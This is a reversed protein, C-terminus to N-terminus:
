KQSHIKLLQRSAIHLFKNSSLHHSYTQFQGDRNTVQYGTYSPKFPKSKILMMKMILRRYLKRLLLFHIFARQTLDMAIGALAVPSSPTETAM